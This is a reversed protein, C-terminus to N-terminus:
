YNRNGRALKSVKKWSMEINGTVFVLVFNQNYPYGEVSSILIFKSCDINLVASYKFQKVLILLMETNRDQLLHKLYLYIVHLDRMNLSGSERSKTNDSRWKEGLLICLTETLSRSWKIPDGFENFMYEFIHTVLTKTSKPYMVKLRRVQGQYYFLHHLTNGWDTKTSKLLVAYM